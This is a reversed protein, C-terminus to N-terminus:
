KAPVESNALPAQRQQDEEWEADATEFIKEVMKRSREAKDLLFLRSKFENSIELALDQLENIEKELVELLAKEESTAVANLYSELKAIAGTIRKELEIYSEALQHLDVKEELLYLGQAEIKYRKRLSTIDAKLELLKVASTARAKDTWGRKAGCEICITQGSEHCHAYTGYPLSKACDLCKADFTVRDLKIPSYKLVGSVYLGKEAIAKAVCLGCVVDPAKSGLSRAKKAEAVLRKAEGKGSTIVFQTEAQRGCDCFSGKPMDMAFLKNDPLSPM